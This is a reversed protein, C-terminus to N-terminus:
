GNTLGFINIIADGSLERSSAHILIIGLGQKAALSYWKVATKYDQPVGQGEQYMYGLFSQTRFDGQEALPTWERLATAFNGSQYATWGKQLDAGASMGVRGFLISLTLCIIAPITRVPISKSSKTPSPLSM